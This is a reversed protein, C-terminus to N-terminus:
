QEVIIPHLSSSSTRMIPNDYYISFIIPLDDKLKGEVLYNRKCCITNSKSPFHFHSFISSTTLKRFQGHFNSWIKPFHLTWRSNHRLPLKCVVVAVVINWHFNRRSFFLLPLVDTFSRTTSSPSELTPRHVPSKLSLPPISLAIPLPLRLRLVVFGIWLTSFSIMLQPSFFAFRAGYRNVDLYIYQATNALKHQFPNPNMHWSNPTNFIPTNQPSHTNRIM